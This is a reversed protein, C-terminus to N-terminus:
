WWWWGLHPSCECCIRSIRRGGVVVAGHLGPGEWNHHHLRCSSSQQQSFCLPDMTIRRPRLCGARCRLSFPESVIVRSSRKPAVHTTANAGYAPSTSRWTILGFNHVYELGLACCRGTVGEARPVCVQVCMCVCVLVCLCVLVCATSSYISSHVDVGSRCASYSVCACEQM